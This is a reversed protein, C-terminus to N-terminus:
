ATNEYSALQLSYSSWWNIRKGNEGRCLKIPNTQTAAVLQSSYVKQLGESLWAEDASDKHLLSRNFAYPACGERDVPSFPEGRGRFVLVARGTRFEKLLLELVPIRGKCTQCLTITM